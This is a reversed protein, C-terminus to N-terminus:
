WFAASLLWTCPDTWFQPDETQVKNWTVGITGPIQPHSWSKRSFKHVWPSSIKIYIRTSLSLSLLAVYITNTQVHVSFPLFYFEWLTNYIFKNDVLGLPLDLFPL